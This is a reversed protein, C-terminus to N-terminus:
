GAWPPPPQVCAQDLGKLRQRRLPQGLMDFAQRVMGQPALHPVLSHSVVLLGAGYGVAVSRKALLHGGELLGQLGERVQGLVTVGPYQGDLDAECQCARQLCLSFIPSIAGQQALGRGQGPCKVVPGPQSPHQGRYGTYEPYRSVVVAGHHRALLGEHERGREALAGQLRLCRM